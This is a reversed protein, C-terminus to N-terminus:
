SVVRRVELMGDYVVSRSSPLMHHGNLVRTGSIIRPHEPSFVLSPPPPTWLRGIVTIMYTPLTETNRYLAFPLYMYVCPFM